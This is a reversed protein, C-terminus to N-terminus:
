KNTPMSKPMDGVLTTPDVREGMWNMRWDLHPGTARGTAGVEALLQGQKITDGVKVLVRSLHMFTSSLEHGHDLILTGGSYFLDPEALTITGAAPAHIQTGTPAAIDVGYHPRRPEGNYVRQSGYVGTIPGTLPWVFDQMFHTATLKKQRAAWVTQAEKKTRARQAASPNVTKSPVGNVRQIVYERPAVNFQHPQSEGGASTVVLTASKPADRGLGLVFEGQASVPVNKNLFVLKSGPAVHGRLIAGQQWVGNLELASATPVIVLLLLIRVFNLM